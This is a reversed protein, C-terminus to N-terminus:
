IVLPFSNLENLVSKDIEQFQATNFSSHFAQWLDNLELCPQSNYKIMKIALLKCKNVWNMLEWPGHKKNAIEQIKIDFFARKM